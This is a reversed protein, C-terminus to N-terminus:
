VAEPGHMMCRHVAAEIEHHNTDKHGYKKHAADVCVGRHWLHWPASAVNTSVVSVSLLLCTAAFCKMMMAYEYIERVLL